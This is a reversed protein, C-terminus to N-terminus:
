AIDFRDFSVQQRGFETRLVVLANEQQRM